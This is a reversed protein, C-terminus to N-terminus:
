GSRLFKRLSRTVRSMSKKASRRVKKRTSRRKKRGGGAAAADTPTRIQPPEIKPVPVEPVKVQAAAKAKAEEVKKEADEVVDTVGEITKKVKDKEKDVAEKATDIVESGQKAVGAIADAGSVLDRALAITAVGPVEEAVDMIINEGVKEGRKALDEAMENVPEQIEDAVTEELKKAVEAAKKVEEGFKKDESLVEGIETATELKQELEEVAKNPDTNDLDIGAKNELKTVMGEAVTAGIGVATNVASTAIEKGEKVLDSVKHGLDGALNIAGAWFMPSLPVAGGDNNNTIDSIASTAKNAVMIEPNSVEVALKAADAASSTAESSLSKLSSSASKNTPEKETNENSTEEDPDTDQTPKGQANIPETANEKSPPLNDTLPETSAKETVARGGRKKAQRKKTRRRRNLISKVM